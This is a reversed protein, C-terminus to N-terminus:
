ETFQQTDQGCCMMKVWCQGPSRTRKFVLGANQLSLVIGSPLLCFLAAHTGGLASQVRCMGGQQDGWQQPGFGRTFLWRPNLPHCAGSNPPPTCPEWSSTSYAYPLTEGDLQQAYPQSFGLLSPSSIRMLWEAMFARRWLVSALVLGPPSDPNVGVAPVWLARGPGRRKKEM